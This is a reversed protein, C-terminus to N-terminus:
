KFEDQASIYAPIEARKDTIKVLTPKTDPTFIFEQLKKKDKFAEQAETRYVSVFGQARNNGLMDTNRFLESTLAHMSTMTNAYKAYEEESMGSERMFKAKDVKVGKPVSAAARAEALQAEDM